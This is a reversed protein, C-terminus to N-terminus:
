KLGLLILLETIIGELDVVVEEGKFDGAAVAAREGELEVALGKGWRTVQLRELGPFKVEIKPEVLRVM